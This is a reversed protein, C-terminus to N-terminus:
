LALERIANGMRAVAVALFAEAITETSYRQSTVTHASRVLESLRERSAEVDIPEGGSAGFVRPFKEPPIRGLVVNCDTM